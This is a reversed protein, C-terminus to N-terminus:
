KYVHYFSKAVAFYGEPDRVEMTGGWPNNALFNGTEDLGVLLIYHGGGSETRYSTIILEGEGLLRKVEEKHDNSFPQGHTGIAEGKLGLESQLNSNFFAQGFTGNCSGCDGLKCARCRNGYETGVGPCSSQQSWNFAVIEPDITEGSLFSAAMAYATAGCGSSKVNGGDSTFCLSEGYQIHAFQKQDYSPVGNWGEGGEAPTSSLTTPGGGVAFNVPTETPLDYDVVEIYKLTLTEFAVTNPDILFGITYAGLLLVMGVVADAIRKKAAGAASPSGGAMMYQVGGIMIMLVAVLAGASILWTYVARVYEGLLNSQFQGHSIASQALEDNFGPIQIGLRPSPVNYEVIGGISVEGAGIPTLDSGVMCRLSWTAIDESSILSQTYCLDFCQTTTTIDVTVFAGDDDVTLVETHIENSPQCLCEITGENCASTDQALAASPMISLTLFLSLAIFSLYKMKNHM